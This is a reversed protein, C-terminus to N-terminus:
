AWSADLITFLRNQFGNPAVLDGLSGGLDSFTGWPATWIGFFTGLSQGLCGFTDGPADLIGFVACSIMWFVVGNSMGCRELFFFHPPQRCPAKARLIRRGRGCAPEPTNLVKVPRTRESDEGSDGFEENRPCVAHSALGAAFEKKAINETELNSDSKSM